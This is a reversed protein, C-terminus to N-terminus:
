QNARVNERKELFFISILFQMEEKQRADVTKAHNLDIVISKLLVVSPLSKIHINSPIMFFKFIDMWKATENNLQFCRLLAILDKIEHIMVIQALQIIVSQRAM